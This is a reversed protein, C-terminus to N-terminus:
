PTELLAYIELLTPFTVPLRRVFSAGSIYIYTHILGFAVQCVCAGRGPPAPHMLLRLSSLHHLFMARWAAASDVRGTGTPALPRNHLKGITASDCACGPCLGRLPLADQTAPLIANCERGGSARCPPHIFSSTSIWMWKYHLGRVAAHESKNRQERQRSSNSSMTTKKGWKERLPQLKHANWGPRGYRICNRPSRESM